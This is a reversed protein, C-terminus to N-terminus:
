GAKGRLHREERRTERAHSGVNEPDSVRGLAGQRWIDRAAQRGVQLDIPQPVLRAGDRAHALPEVAVADVADLARQSGPISSAACRRSASPTGAEGHLLRPREAVLLQHLLHEVARADARRAVRARRGRALHAVRGSRM